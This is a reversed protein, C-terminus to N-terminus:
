SAIQDAPDFAPGHRTLVASGNVLNREPDIIAAVLQWLLMMTVYVFVLFYYRHPLTLCVRLLASPNACAEEMTAM